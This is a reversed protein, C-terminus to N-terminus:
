KKIIRVITGHNIELLYYGPALHSVDLTTSNDGNGNATMVMTGSINYITIMEIAEPANITLTSVAPVPYVKLSQTGSEITEIVTVGGDIVTGGISNATAGISASSSINYNTGGYVAEISYVWNKPNTSTKTGTQEDNSDYYYIITSKDASTEGGASWTGENASFDYDGPVYDYGNGGDNVPKGGIMIEFGTLPETITVPNGQGDYKQSGDDNLAPKTVLVQYYSVPEEPEYMPADFNIEVRYVGDVSSGEKGTYVTVSEPTPAQPTYNRKAEDVTTESYHIDAENDVNVYNVTVTSQYIVDRKLDSHEFKFYASHEDEHIDTYTENILAGTGSGTTKQGDKVREWTYSGDPEITYIWVDSGSADKFIYTYSDIKYNVNGTTTEPAEMAIGFTATGDYRVLDGNTYETNEHRSNIELDVPTAPFYSNPLLRYKAFRVGPIYQYIYVCTAEGPDTFGPTIGIEEENEIKGHVAYIWNGNADNYSGDTIEDQTLQAAPIPKSLDAYVNDLMGTEEDSSRASSYDARDGMAVLFNGSNQSYTCQPTILFIEGNWGITCGGANNIRSRTDYITLLTDATATNNTPKVNAYVRSRLQHVYDGRYEHSYTGNANKKLYRVPFVYNEVGTTYDSTKDIMNTPIDAKDVLTATIATSSTRTLKIKNSRATSSGSVWLYAIGGVTSLDGTMHYYDTRGFYVGHIPDTGYTDFIDCKTLDVTIPSESDYSGDSKRPYIYGYGLEFAFSKRSTSTMDGDVGTSGGRRVFINGGEDAAIGVNYGKLNLDTYSASIDYGIVRSATETLIKNKDASFRLVGGYATGATTTGGTANADFQQAVYWNGKYYVGQKYRVKTTLNSYLGQPKVNNTGSGIPYNYITEISYTTKMPNRKGITVTQPANKAVEDPFQTYGSAIQYTHEGAPIETDLYNYNIIKDSSIKVGDRYVNYYDPWPGYSPRYWYLQTKQYGDYNKYPTEAWVPPIPLFDPTLSMEFPHGIATGDSKLPTIRFNYTTAYRSGSNKNWYIDQKTASTASINEYLTTYDSVVAGAPNAISTSYEVKYGSCPHNFQSWNLVADQRNPADTTNVAVEGSYTEYSIDYRCVHNPNPTGSTITGNQPSLMYLGMTNDDIQEFECWANITGFQGVNSHGDNYYQSTVTQSYTGSRDLIIAVPWKVANGNIDTLTPNSNYTGNRTGYPHAYLEHGKFYAVAPMQYYNAKYSSPVTISANEWNIEVDLYAFPCTSANGDMRISLFYKGNSLRRLYSDSTGAATNSTQVSSPLTIAHGGSQNASGGVTTGSTNVMCRVAKKGDTMYIYGTGDWLNGSASFFNCNLSISSITLTIDKYNAPNIVEGRKSSAKYIRFKKCITASGPDHGYAVLLNKNDDTAIGLGNYTQGTNMVGWAANAGGSTEYYFSNYYAIGTKNGQSSPGLLPGYVVGNSVAISRTPNYSGSGTTWSMDWAPAGYAQRNPIFIRSGSVAAQASISLFACLLLTSHFFVKKM